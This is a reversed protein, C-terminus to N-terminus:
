KLIFITEEIEKGRANAFGKDKGTITFGSKELVRISALNDNAARAYLPRVVVHSLFESLAKTAIGKGWHEKGIWYSVEPIGFWGHSLISGAVHGNFLITMKTITEDRLIKAWKQMFVDRDAPDKATFAAMHNATPDLQQNFFVALDSKIVARLLAENKQKM